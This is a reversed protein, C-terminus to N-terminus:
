AWPGRRGAGGAPPLYLLPPSLRLRPGGPRRERGPASVGVSGWPKCPARLGPPSRRSRGSGRPSGSSGFKGPSRLAPSAGWVLHVKIASFELWTGPDTSCRDPGPAPQAGPQPAPAGRGGEARERPPRPGSGGAGSRSRRGPSGGRRGRRTEEGEGKPPPPPAPLLPARLAADIPLKTISGFTSAALKAELSAERSGQTKRGQRTGWVSLHEWCSAPSKEASGRSGRTGM